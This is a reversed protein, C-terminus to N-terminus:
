TSQYLLNLVSEPWMVKVEDNFLCLQKKTDATPVNFLAFAGSLVMLKINLAIVERLM